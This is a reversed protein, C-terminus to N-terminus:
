LQHRRVSVCVDGDRENLTYELCGGDPDPAYFGGIEGFFRKAEHPTCAPLFTRLVRPDYFRFFVERGDDLKVLLFKKLQIRLPELELATSLYVCWHDNWGQLVLQELLPSPSLLRAVYPAYAKLDGPQGELTLLSGHEGACQQLLPYIIPSRAADIVALLNGPRSALFDIVARPDPTTPM